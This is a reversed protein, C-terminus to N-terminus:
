EAPEEVAEQEVVEPVEEIEVEVEFCDEESYSGPESSTGIPCSLETSSGEPCFTGANCFKCDYFGTAGAMDNYFGAPCLIPESSNMQCFTGIPCEVCSAAGAYSFFGAQCFKPETNGASSYSGPPTIMCQGDVEFSGAPCPVASVM